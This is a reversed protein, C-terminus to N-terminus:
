AGGRPLGRASGRVEAGTTPVGGGRRDSCWQRDLDLEAMWGQKRVLGLVGDREGM